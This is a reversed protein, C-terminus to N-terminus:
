ARDYGLRLLHQGGGSEAPWGGPRRVAGGAPCVPDTCRRAAWQRLDAPQDLRGLRRTRGRRALASTNSAASFDPCVCVRNERIALGTPGQGEPRDDAYISISGLYGTDDGHAAVPVVYHTEADVWGVWAMAFQSIDVLIRCISMFVQERSTSRLLTQNIQGLAAYLRGIREIERERDRGLEIEQRAAQEAAQHRVRERRQWLAGGFLIVLGMGMLLLALAQIARQRGAAFAEASDMKAVLFWDSDPVRALAAVVAVGRYDQGEVIGTEGRIARVAPIGVHSLPERRALEAAPAHRLPSLFLAQDGDRRVLLSEASTSPVPWAALTPYISDRADIRMLIAGLPARGEGAGSYLPAIVSLHPFPHRASRHLETLIPQRERLALTLGARDEGTLADSAGSLSLEVRGNPDVLVVDQYGYHRQLGGFQVLLRETLAADPAARWRTVADILLPSDTLAGGDGTREARWVSLQNVKLAAITTLYGAAERRAQQIQARYFATAGVGM